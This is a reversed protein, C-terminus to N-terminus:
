NRFGTAPSYRTSRRCLATSRTSTSRTPSQDHAHGDRSVGFPRAALRRQRPPPQAQTGVHEGRIHHVPTQYSYQQHGVPVM